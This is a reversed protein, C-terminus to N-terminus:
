TEFCIKAFSKPQTDHTKWAAGSKSPSQFGGRRSSVGDMCGSQEIQTDSYTFHRKGGHENDQLEGLSRKVHRLCSDQGKAWEGAGVAALLFREVNSWRVGAGCMRPM